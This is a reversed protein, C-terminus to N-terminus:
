IIIVFLSGVLEVEESLSGLSSGNLNSVDLQFFKDVNSTVVEM